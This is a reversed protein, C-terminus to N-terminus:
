FMFSSDLLLAFNLVDPPQERLNTTSSACEQSQSASFAESCTASTGTMSPCLVPCPVHVAGSLLVSHRSGVKM